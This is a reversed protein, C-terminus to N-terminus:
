ELLGPRVAELADDRLPRGAAVQGPPAALRPQLDLRLLALLERDGAVRAPPAAAVVGEAREHQGDLASRLEHPRAVAARAEVVGLEVHQHLLERRQPALRGREWDLRLHRAARGAVCGP